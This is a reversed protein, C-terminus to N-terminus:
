MTVCGTQLKRQLAVGSVQWPFSHLFRCSRPLFLALFDRQSCPILPIWSSITRWFLWDVTLCKNWKTLFYRSLVNADQLLCVNKLMPQSFMDFLREGNGCAPKKRRWPCIAKVMDCFVSKPLIKSSLLYKGLQALPSWEVSCPLKPPFFAFCALSKPCSVQM